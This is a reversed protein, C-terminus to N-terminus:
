LCISIYFYTNPSLHLLDTHTRRMLYELQEMDKVKWEFKLEIINGRIPHKISHYDKDKVEVTIHYEKM